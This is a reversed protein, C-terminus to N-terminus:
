HSGRTNQRRVNHMMNCYLGGEIFGSSAVVVVEGHYM